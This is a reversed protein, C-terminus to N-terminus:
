LTGPPAGDFYEPKYNKRPIIMAPPIFNGAGNACVAISVHQGREASTLAGVQKKGKQAFIKPPKQVTSLGSEDMNYIKSPPIENDTVLKELLEFFKMVQPKNFARARAASTAEPARLSISPNCVRFGKLWDWGAIQTDEDFQQEIASDFTSKFRGLNVPVNVFHRRLTAQPVNFIKSAKLWGMKNEVVSKIAKAM